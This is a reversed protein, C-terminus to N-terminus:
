AMGAEPDGHAFGFIQDKFEKLSFPPLMKEHKAPQSPQTQQDAQAQLDQGSQVSSIEMRQDDFADTQGNVNASAVSHKGSPQQVSETQPSPTTFRDYQSTEANAPEVADPETFQDTQYDAPAEDDDPIRFIPIKPIEHHPKGYDNSPYSASQPEDYYSANDSVNDDDPIKFIPIHPIEHRQQGITKVMKRFKTRTQNQATFGAQLYKKTAYHEERMAELTHLGQADAKKLIASIYAPPNIPTHDSSVNVAFCLMRAGYKKMLFNLTKQTRKTLPGILSRYQTLVQEFDDEAVHDLEGFDDLCHKAVPQSVPESQELDMSTHIPNENGNARTQAPSDIKDLNIYNNNLDKIESTNVNQVDRREYKSGRSSQQASPVQVANQQTKRHASKAPHVYDNVYIHYESLGKREVNILGAKILKKRINSITHRSAHMMRAIEDNSFYIFPRGQEDVFHLNGQKASKISANLRSSYISYMVLSAIDLNQYAPSELLDLEIKLFLSTM